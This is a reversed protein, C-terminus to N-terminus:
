LAPSQLANIKATITRVQQDLEDLSADLHAVIEALEPDIITSHSLEKWLIILGLARALPARLEHSQM